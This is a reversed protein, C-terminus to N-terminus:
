CGWVVGYLLGTGCMCACTGGWARGRPAGRGRVEEAVDYLIASRPEVPPLGVAVAKEDRPRGRRRRLAQPGGRTAAAEWADWQVALSEAFDGHDVLVCERDPDAADQLGIFPLRPCRLPPCSVAHQAHQSSPQYPTNVHLNCAHPSLRRPHRSPTVRRSEAPVPDACGSLPPPPSACGAACGSVEAEPPPPALVARTGRLELGAGTGAGAGADAGAGATGAPLGAGAHVPSAALAPQQAQPAGAPTHHHLHHHQGAHAAADASHIQTHSHYFLM